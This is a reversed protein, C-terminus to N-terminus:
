GIWIKSYVSLVPSRATSSKAPGTIRLIICVKAPATPNLLIDWKREFAQAAWGFETTVTSLPSPMGIYYTDDYFLRVSLSHATSERAANEEDNVASPAASAFCLLACLALAAPLKKM